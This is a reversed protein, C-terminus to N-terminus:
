HKSSQSRCTLLKDIWWTRFSHPSKAHNHLHLPELFWKSPRFFNLPCCRVVQFLSELYNSQLLYAQHKLPKPFETITFSQHMESVKIRTHLLAMQLRGHENVQVTEKFLRLFNQPHLYYGSEWENWVHHITFTYQFKSMENEFTIYTFRYQWTNINIPWM